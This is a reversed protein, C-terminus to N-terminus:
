YSITAKFTQLWNQLVEDFVTPRDMMPTHAAGAIVELQAQPLRGLLEDAMAKTVWIDREGWILLTPCTVEPLVELPDDSLVYQAARWLNLVGSRWGDMFVMPICRREGLWALRPLELMLHSLPRNVLASASVLVLGRLSVRTAVYLGIHAGMSHGVFTPREIRHHELFAVVAQAAEKIALPRHRASAGFGPLELTWVQHHTELWPQQHQWWRKSGALGHLLVIPKGQGQVTYSILELV